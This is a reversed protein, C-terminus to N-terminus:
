TLYRVHRIRGLFAAVEAESAGFEHRLFDAEDLTYPYWSHGEWPAAGGSSHDDIMREVRLEHYRAANWMGQEQLLQKMVVIDQITSTLTARLAEIRLEAEALDRCPGSLRFYREPALYGPEPPHISSEPAEPVEAVRGLEAGCHACFRAGSRNCMGCQSCSSADTM